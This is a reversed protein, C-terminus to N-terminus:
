EDRWDTIIGGLAVDEGDYLVVSQGASPARLPEDFHVTLRDGEVFATCPYTQRTYRVKAALRTPKELDHPAAALFNMREAFVTRAQPSAPAVHVRNREADRATVYMPHGVSLGLGRKQGITYCAQNKASGITAGTDDVFTGDPLPVGERELFAAYDGDPIFCIDQSEKAQACSFGRAAAIERIQTKTYVGLPLLLRALIEQPLGWLMYTQDKNVDAACSVTYRSGIKKVRAYHGTAIAEIGHADAFDALSPFKVTRNCTICPNPTHGCTYEDTFDRIVSACFPARVDFLSFPIGLAEAVQRARPNDTEGYMLLSVGHPAYNMEKLLCACVASDVGGSMGVAVARM